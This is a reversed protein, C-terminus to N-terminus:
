KKETGLSDQAGEIADNMVEIQRQYGALDGGELAKQAANYADSADKLWQQTTKEAPKDGEAPPKAGEDEAPPATGEEIGLAVRLAEDLTTGFGVSEGFTAAVFQLVPFSGEAASRQIYVPQVYLLSGGVPLTLLNGRLIRAERSQEFQLLAQTVGRDTQFSNAIQSPGPIQTESPLQLIQMKGFNETDTAESNVSVFAALNQRSNPLYVSTVSFKPETEGPRATSLYYPPQLARSSAPATPDEPVKWREGDEYFTQADTVHYRQLVDRQVKFLDVPYRLHELLSQDISSKSEVIGPFVKKWTKLVPDKTDWEYLKVTGDYADVVAKVSNRMYNVQDTPLAAQANGDTLTDATAERLSRHQSYPYSNSTTYGDVIWVVRGDVVAPYTDGDVTLWPAVKKVRDRPERDYLIKSESNVRGSLVINPEAFKFAYLMKHFLNGIPVGGKGDYTNQTVNEADTDASAAAGGRPIDVEIPKAGKPRGVISYSPSQEGFYIRPPTTTKIEGAPPIDKATFVPEGNPGRQNGRAAIIGYGHTYVTHDNAWNRQNSQLGSLNLERAAIITDQPQTDGPLTYRDVDLTTPVSYYGRVQQLQEFADSILTPDLLRTSVRSEASAALAQPTLDTTASYSEVETDAVDYAQRTAEINRAIYPAEKDPESPKVQFGQMVAPWIAGLLISTVALLGLGIAPLAWSRFFATAFFLLACAIAVWILINKAPIRANIDTFTGGDVLGGDSILMGFRDLYYSVARTLIGIGVLVSLHIQAARTLKPGRGAIRIGGFVYTVFVVALVTVIIMAFSFSTVFRWWPYDFVYFSVDKGFQPDKTGFSTGNRWMKFTDWHSAAVSGAFATLVVFLGIGIPKLIPTLALRYRYAPDDRRAPVTDPRTRYAIYLNAMVFLGFFLGMIVFLAIRSFLVSRFVDSYGVSKFWLRDTWVSTFISGLFLLVALTILTPILVKQRRGAPPRPQRPRPTGFIDSM